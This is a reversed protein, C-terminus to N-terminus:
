LGPEIWAMKDLPESQYGRGQPQLPLTFPSALRRPKFALEFCLRSDHRNCYAIERLRVYVTTPQIPCPILRALGNNCFALFASQIPDIRWVSAWVLSELTKLYPLARFELAGLLGVYSLLLVFRSCVLYLFGWAIKLGCSTLESLDIEALSVRIISASSETNM